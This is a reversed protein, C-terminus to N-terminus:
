IISIVATCRKLPFFPLYKEGCSVCKLVPLDEFDIESDEVQIQAEDIFLETLGKCAECCHDGKFRKLYDQFADECVFSRHFM